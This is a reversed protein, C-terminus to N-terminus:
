IKTCFPYKLCGADAQCFGDHSYNFDCKNLSNNINEILHYPDYM